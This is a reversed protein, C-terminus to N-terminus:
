WKKEVLLNLMRKPRNWPYLYVFFDFITPLNKWFMKLMIWSFSLLILTMNWLHCLARSDLFNFAVYWKIRGLHDSYWHIINNCEKDLVILCIWTVSFLSFQVNVGIWIESVLLQSHVCPTEHMHKIPQYVHTPTLNDIKVAVEFHGVHNLTKTVKKCIVYSSSFM